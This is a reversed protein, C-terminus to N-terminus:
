GALVRHLILGIVVAGALWLGAVIGMGVRSRPRTSILTDAAARAEDLVNGPILKVALAIGLPVLVLDDVLGLVPIFDPILDLPSLAYAVVLAVVLRAYWPTRPDKAALWLAYVERKLRRAAAKWRSLLGTGTALRSSDNM